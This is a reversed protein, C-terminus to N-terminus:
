MSGFSASVDRAELTSQRPQAATLELRHVARQRLGIQKAFEIQSLRLVASGARVKAALCQNENRGQL